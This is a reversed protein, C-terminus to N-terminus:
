NDNMWEFDEIEGSVIIAMLVTERCVAFQLVSPTHKNFNLSFTSLVYLACLNSSDYFAGDFGGGCKIYHIINLLQMQLVHM